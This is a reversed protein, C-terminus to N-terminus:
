MVTYSCFPELTQLLEFYGQEHLVFSLTIKSLGHFLYFFVVGITKKQENTAIKSNRGADFQRITSRVQPLM